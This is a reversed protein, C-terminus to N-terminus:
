KHPIKDPDAPSSITKEKSSSEVEHMIQKLDDAASKSADMLVIFALAEIDGSQTGPGGTVTPYLASRAANWVAASGVVDAQPFTTPPISKPTPAPAPTAPQGSLPANVARTLAVPDNSIKGSM